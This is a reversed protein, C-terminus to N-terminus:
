TGSMSHQGRSHFQIMCSCVPTNQFPVHKSLMPITFMNDPFLYSAPISHSDDCEFVCYMYMSAYMTHIYYLLISRALAKM